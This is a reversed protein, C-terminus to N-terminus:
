PNPAFARIARVRARDTYTKAAGYVTRSGNKPNNVIWALTSSNESSSWYRDNQMELAYGFPARGTNWYSGIGGAGEYIQVLEDKSPLYWDTRGNGVFARARGAAYSCSTVSSCIGNQNVIADTNKLGTGIATSNASAVSTSANEAPAWPTGQCDGADGGCWDRRALELYNCTSLLDTGCAFGAASVYFVVGGGPGIQGLSCVGGNACTKPITVNVANSTVTLNTQANGATDTVSFTDAPAISSEVTPGGQVATSTANIACVTSSSQDISSIASINTLVFDVGNGTSLTSCTIAENGTVAFTITASASTSSSATLVVTPPTSDITVTGSSAASLNGVSDVAYAKYTGELLGSVLLNTSTSAAVSLSNWLNGNSSTISSLSSVSITSNALYITGAETSRVVVSGSESATATTLTATPPAADVKHSASVAIATHTVVASNGSTDTLSGGNLALANSAVGIGSSASDGTVVTYSFTLSSTGSGSSYTLYKTSLGSILLRPVGTVTVAESFNVTVSIVDGTAYTSDSGSNSSVSLTSVTPASTDYSISLVSSATNGNGAADTLVGSGVSVSAAGSSSSTPTFTATYSVGSGSLSSLLGGSVTVDGVVFNTSSESLTFTLSATQGVLLTGSGSRSVSVTPATQDTVSVTYTGTTVNYVSTNTPTFSATIVSTGVGVIAVAGTASEVTAVSTTASSYSLTGPVSTGGYSASPASPTFSPDSDSKAINSMSTLTPTVKSVVFTVDTTAQGYRATAAATARVVCSGAASYTLVGSSANVSCGTTGASTVAYSIAGDGSSTAAVSPTLPSQTTLVATTPSWSVTQTGVGITFSIPSSDAALYAGSQAISASISCTGASVFTVVGSLSGVTCVPATSTLFSKVGSGASATATITPPTATMVYTASYSSADISLSRSARPVYESSASSNAGSGLSNRAKVKFYYSTGNTLGTLSTSTSGGTVIASQYTAFVSSTSYQVTYDIIASGGTSTATWSLALAGDSETAQLNSPIGPSTVPMVAGSSSSYSGSGFANRALVRFYYSTGNSLAGITLQRPSASINVSASSAFNSASSYEM